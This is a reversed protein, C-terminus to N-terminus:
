VGGILQETRGLVQAPQSQAPPPGGGRGVYPSPGRGSQQMGEAQAILLNPSTGGMQAAEGGQNLQAVADQMAPSAGAVTNADVPPAGRQMLILNLRQQVESEILGAGLLNRRTRQLIIKREIEDPNELGLYFERATEDDVLPGQTGREMTADLAARISAMVDRPSQAKVKASIQPMTKLHKAPNLALYSGKPNGKKDRESHFAYVTEGMAKVHELILHARGKAARSFNNEVQNDLHEAQSVQLAQHYGTNVGPERSGFLSPAGALEAIRQKITEMTWELLPFAQPKFVSELREDAWMALAQGEQIVPPKPLGEDAARSAKSYYAVLSPWMVNREYTLAQSFLEDARQSLELLANMVPEIRNVSTKWGGSRGGMHNVLPRGLDHEYSKLLVPQGISMQSPSDAKPWTNRSGSPTLAYYSHLHPTIHHVIVVEEKLGDALAARGRAQPLRSTDFSKSRMVERLSRREIQFEEVVTPGEYVPLSMETPVYVSRIPLGIRQKYEERRKEYNEPDARFIADFGAEDVVLEPWFSAPFREIREVAEDLMIADAMMNVWVNADSHEEMIETARNLWNEIHTSRSRAQEGIGDPAVQYRPLPMFRALKENHAAALFFTHGVVVKYNATQPAKIPNQGALVARFQRILADRPRWYDIQASLMDRLKDPAPIEALYDPM